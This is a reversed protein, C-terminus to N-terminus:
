MSRCFSFKINTYKKKIRKKLKLIFSDPFSSHSVLPYIYSTGTARASFSLIICINQFVAFVRRVTTM